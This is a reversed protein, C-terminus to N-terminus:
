QDPIVTVIFFNGYYGPNKSSRFLFVILPYHWSCTRFTVAEDVKHKRLLRNKLMKKKFKGFFTRFM